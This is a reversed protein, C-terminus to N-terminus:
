RCEIATLRLETIPRGDKGRYIYEVSAGREIMEKGFPSACYEKKLDSLSDSIAGRDINGSAYNVLTYSYTLKEGPGAVVSDWRTQPNLMKPLHQRMSDAMKVLYDNGRSDDASVINWAAGAILFILGAALGITLKSRRGTRIMRVGGILGSLGFLIVLVFLVLYSGDGHLMSTFTGMAAILILSIAGLLWGVRRIGATGAAASSPDQSRMPDPGGKQDSLVEVNTM